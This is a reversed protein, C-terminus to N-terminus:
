TIACVTIEICCPVSSYSQYLPFEFLKPWARLDHIIRCRHLQSPPQYTDVPLFPIPGCVGFNFRHDSERAATFPVCVCHLDTVSDQLLELQCRESKLAYAPGSEISNSSDTMTLMDNGLSLSLRSQRYDSTGVCM